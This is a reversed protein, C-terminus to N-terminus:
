LSTRRRETFRQELDHVNQYLCHRLTVRNVFEHILLTRLPLRIINVHCGTRILKKADVIAADLFVQCLMQLGSFVSRLGKNIVLGAKQRGEKQAKM